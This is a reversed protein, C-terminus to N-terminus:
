PPMMTLSKSCDPRDVDFFVRLRELAATVVADIDEPDASILSASTDAILTEFALRARAAVPTPM